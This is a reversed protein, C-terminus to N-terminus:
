RGRTPAAGDAAAAGAAEIVSRAAAVIPTYGTCRCLNGELGRRIQEDTAGPQGALLSVLAADVAAARSTAIVAAVPEGDFRVRDSALLPIPVDAAQVGNETVIPLSGLAAADAHTVVAAVGPAARAASVDIGRVHAHALPSRVAM